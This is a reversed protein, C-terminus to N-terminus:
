DHLPAEFDYDTRLIHIERGHTFTSGVLWQTVMGQITICVYLDCTFGNPPARITPRIM